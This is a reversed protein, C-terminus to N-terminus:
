KNFSIRHISYGHLYPSFTINLFGNVVEIKTEPPLFMDLAELFKEKTPYVENPKWIHFLNCSVDCKFKNLDPYFTKLGNLDNWGADCFLITEKLRTPSNRLFDLQNEMISVTRKVDPYELIVDRKWLEHNLRQTETIYIDWGLTCISILSLLSIILLYIM